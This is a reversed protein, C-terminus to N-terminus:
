RAVWHSQPAVLRQLHRLLLLVVYVRDNAPPAPVHWDPQHKQDPVKPRIPLERNWLRAHHACTNRVYNLTHLWSELVPPLLGFHAALQQQQSIDQNPFILVAYKWFASAIAAFDADAVPRTLDVDGIEAAFDPTIPSITITM